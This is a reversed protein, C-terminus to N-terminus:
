DHTFFVQSPRHPFIASPQPPSSEHSVQPAPSVQSATAFVHPGHSRVVHSAAPASHPVMESPHPPDSVQPLPQGEVSVQTFLTHLGAAVGSSHLFLPLFQPVIVLAHLPEGTFQPLQASPSTHVSLTHRLQM